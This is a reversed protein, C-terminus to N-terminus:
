VRVGGELMKSYAEIEEACGNIHNLCMLKEYEDVAAKYRATWKEKAENLGAILYRLLTEGKHGFRQKM